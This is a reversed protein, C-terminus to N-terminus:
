EDMKVGTKGKPFVSPLLELLVRFVKPNEGIESLEAPEV